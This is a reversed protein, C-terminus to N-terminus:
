VYVCVCVSTQVYMALNVVALIKVPFACTNISTLVYGHNM